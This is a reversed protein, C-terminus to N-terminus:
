MQHIMKDVTTTCALGQKVTDMMEKEGVKFLSIELPPDNKAQMSSSLPKQRPFLFISFNNPTDERDHLSQRTVIATALRTEIKM